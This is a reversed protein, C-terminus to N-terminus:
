MEVSLTNRLWEEVGIALVLCMKIYKKELTVSSDTRLNGKNLIIIAYLFNHSFVLQSLTASKWIWSFIKTMRFKPQSPYRM